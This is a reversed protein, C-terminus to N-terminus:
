NLNQIFDVFEDKNMKKFNEWSISRNTLTKLDSFILFDNKQSFDPNQKVNKIFILKNELEKDRKKLDPINKGFWLLIIKNNSNGGEYKHKKLPTVFKKLDKNLTIQNGVRQVEFFYKKCNKYNVYAIIDYSGMSKPKVFKIIREKDVSEQEVRIGKERLKQIIIDEIMWGSILESFYEEPLRDGMSKRLTALPNKSQSNLAYAVELLIFTASAEAIEKLYINELNEPPIEKEEILFNHGTRKLNETLKSKAFDRRKSLKLLQIADLIKGLFGIFEKYKILDKSSNVFEVLDNYNKIKDNESIKTLFEKLKQINESVEKIGRKKLNEETLLNIAQKLANKFSEFECLNEM